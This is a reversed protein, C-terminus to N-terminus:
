RRPKKQDLSPPKSSNSSDKALSLVSAELSTLRATHEAISQRQALNEVVLAQKESRLEKIVARLKANEDDRRALTRELVSVRSLAARLQTRELEKV